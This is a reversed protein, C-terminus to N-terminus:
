LSIRSIAKHISLMRVVVKSVRHYVKWTNTFKVGGHQRVTM